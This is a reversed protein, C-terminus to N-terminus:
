PPFQGHPPLARTPFRRPFQGPTFHGLVLIKVCAANLDEIQAIFIQIRYRQCSPFSHVKGCRLNTIEDTKEGYSELLDSIKFESQQM